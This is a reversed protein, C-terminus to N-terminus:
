DANGGDSPEVFEINLPKVAPKFLLEDNEFFRLDAMDEWLRKVSIGAPTYTGLERYWDCNSPKRGVEARISFAVKHGYRDKGYCVIFRDLNDYPKNTRLITILASKIAEDLTMDKTRVRM